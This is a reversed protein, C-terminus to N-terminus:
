LVETPQENSFFGSYKLQPCRGHPKDKLTFFLLNQLMTGQGKEYKANNHCRGLKCEEVKKRRVSNVLFTKLCIAVISVVCV